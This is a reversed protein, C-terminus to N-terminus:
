CRYLAIAIVILVIGGLIMVITNLIEGFATKRLYVFISPYKWGKIGALISMAGLVCLIFSKMM